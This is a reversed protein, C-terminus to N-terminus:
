LGAAGQGRASPSQCAIQLHSQVMKSVSMIRLFPGISETSRQANWQGSPQKHLICMCHLACKLNQLKALKLQWTLASFILTVYASQYSKLQQQQTAVISPYVPLSTLIIANSTLQVSHIHSYTQM